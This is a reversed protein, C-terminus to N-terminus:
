FEMALALMEEWTPVRLDFTKEFKECNLPTHLPRLAPTPFESTKAPILRELIQENPQSDLELIKKVWDLRSVAGTGVLHYIGQTTQIHQPLNASGRALAQAILEALLRAWTPSGVQDDVIKLEKKTRSWGLVKRVFDDRTLSYLWATRLIWYSVGSTQIAAEAALKSQAYYNLPNPRDTEVYPRNQNGDFVYDTSIHIFGAQIEAAAQAAAAVTKYNIQDCLEHQTEAQDVNTYAVANVIVNPRLTKIQQVVDNPRTFNLDPLDLVVLNGLPLLTRNLERGLQGYKGLLLLKPLVTDM